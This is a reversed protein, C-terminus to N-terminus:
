GIGALLEVVKEPTPVEVDHPVPLEVYKWGAKARARQRSPEISALPPATYSVYTVPLGAGAPKSLRVPSEYTGIPHPRLRRMFWDKAPGDPIPFAEPGPVPLAVGGGQERAAKRRAEETGPPLIKFATDGDEPVLADLYVVHRIRDTMRDAVGTVAMGGYSHGVLIADSIEDTEFVNAVDGIHTEVTIQRSLLHSREGLGTQTPTWVRHGQRRLGEAVDRWIWGGGYAGHVLVYRKGGAQPGSQAQATVRGAAIAAPASALAGLAHRRDM